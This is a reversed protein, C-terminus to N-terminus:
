AIGALIPLTFAATKGSGTQAIGLIDRGQLQPPIAKAQIPTPVTFGAKELSTVLGPSLGLESFNQTM